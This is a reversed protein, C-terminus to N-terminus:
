QRLEIDVREAIQREAALLAGTRISLRHRPRVRLTSGVPRHFHAARATEHGSATDRVTRDGPTGNRFAGAVSGSASASRMGIM